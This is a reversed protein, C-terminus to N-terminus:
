YFLNFVFPHLALIPFFNLLSLFYFQLFAKQAPKEERAKPNEEETPGFWHCGDM